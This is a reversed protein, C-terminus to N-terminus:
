SVRRATERMRAAREDVPTAAPLEHIVPPTWGTVIDAMYAEAEKVAVRNAERTAKRKGAATSWLIGGVVAGIGAATEIVSPRLLYHLEHQAFLVGGGLTLIGAPGAALAAKITNRM